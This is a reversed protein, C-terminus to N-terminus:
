ILRYTQAIFASVCGRLANLLRNFPLRLWILAFLPPLWVKRGGTHIHAACSKRVSTYECHTCLHSFIMKVDSNKESLPLTCLFTEMEMLRIAYSSYRDVDAQMVEEPWTRNKALPSGQDCVWQRGSMCFPFVTNCFSFWGKPERPSNEQSCAPTASPARWPRRCARWSTELMRCPLVHLSSLSPSFM